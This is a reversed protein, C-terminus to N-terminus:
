CSRIPHSIKQVELNVRALLVWVCGCCGRGSHEVGLHPRSRTAGSLRGLCNLRHCRSVNPDFVSGIIAHSGKVNTSNEGFVCIKLHDLVLFLLRTTNLLKEPRTFVAHPIKTKSAHIRATQRQIISPKLGPPLLGRSFACTRHLTIWKQAKYSYTIESTQKWANSSWSSWTIPLM